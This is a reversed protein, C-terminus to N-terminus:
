SPENLFNLVPNTSPLETNATDITNGNYIGVAFKILGETNRGNTLLKPFQLDSNDNITENFETLLPIFINNNEEINKIYQLIEYVLSNSSIEFLPIGNIKFKIINPENM